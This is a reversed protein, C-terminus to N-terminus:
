TMIMRGDFTITTGAANLVKMTYTDSATPLGGLNSGDAYRIFPSNATLGITVDSGSTADFTLTCNGTANFCCSQIVGDPDMVIPGNLTTTGSASVTVNPYNIETNGTASITKQVASVGGGSYQISITHTGAM